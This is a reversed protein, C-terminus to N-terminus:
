IHILSLPTAAAEVPTSGAAVGATIDSPVNAAVSTSESGALKRIQDRSLPGALYSLVFRSEFLTPGTDHVNNMLFQRPKLSSLLQDIESRDFGGPLASELGDLLRAKDRETQLRGIFWTGMNSLGKYDLDVPNQTTLMLGVGYARAQKQRKYM